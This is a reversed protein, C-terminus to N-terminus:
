KSLLCQSGQMTWGMLPAAGIVRQGGYKKLIAERIPKMAAKQRAIQTNDIKVTKTVIQGAGNTKKVRVGNKTEYVPVNNYTKINPKKDIEKLAENIEKQVDSSGVIKSVNKRIFDNSYQGEIANKWDYQFLKRLRSGGESNKVYKNFEPIVDNCWSGDLIYLGKSLKGGLNVDTSAIADNINSITNQPISWPAYWAKNYESWGSVPVVSFREVNM